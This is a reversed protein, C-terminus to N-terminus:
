KLQLQHCLHYVTFRDKLFNQSLFTFLFDNWWESLTRVQCGQYKPFANAKHEGSSAPTYLLNCLLVGRWGPRWWAWLGSLHLESTSGKSYGDRCQRTNLSSQFWQPIKGGARLPWMCSSKDVTCMTYTMDSYLFALGVHNTEWVRRPRMGLCDPLFSRWPLSAAEMTVTSLVTLEPAAIEPPSILNSELVHTNELIALAGTHFLHPCFSLSRIHWISSFPGSNLGM